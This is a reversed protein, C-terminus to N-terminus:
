RRAATRRQHQGAHRDRDREAERHEGEQERHRVTGISDTASFSKVPMSFNSIMAIGNKMRAPLKRVWPPTARRIILKAEDITPGSTRRGRAPRRAPRRATRPPTRNARRRRHHRDARDHQRRHDLRAKGFRKPAPTMVVEPASPMRIGGDITITIYATAVLVETPASNMAPTTGPMTSAEISPRSSRTARACTRSDAGASPSSPRAGAPRGRSRDPAQQQDHDDHAADVGADERRGLRRRHARDIGEEDRDEDVLVQAELVHRLHQEVRGVHARHQEVDDGVGHQEREQHGVLVNRLRQGVPHEALAQAHDREQQDDVDSSSSAPLKM